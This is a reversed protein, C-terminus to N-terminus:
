EQATTGLALRRKLNSHLSRDGRAAIIQDHTVESTSWWVRQGVQKALESPAWRESNFFFKFASVDAAGTSVLEQADKLGGLYLGSDGVPKAGRLDSRTHLMLVTDSGGNGGRYVTSQAFCDMGTAMEGMTFPTERNLLVGRSGGEGHELVLMVAEHYYHDYQDPQAILVTGPALSSAPSCLRIRSRANPRGGHGVAECVMALLFLARLGRPAM